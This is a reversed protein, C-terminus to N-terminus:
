PNILRMLKPFTALINEQKLKGALSEAQSFHKRAADIEGLCLYLPILTFHAQMWRLENENGKAARVRNELLPVAKELAELLPHYNRGAEPWSVPLISELLAIARSWDGQRWYSIALIAQVFSRSEKDELEILVQMAQEFCDMAKRVQSQEWYVTGLCATTSAVHPLDQVSQYIKLSRKYSNAALNWKRNQRYLNGLRTLTNANEQCNGSDQSAEILKELDSITQM